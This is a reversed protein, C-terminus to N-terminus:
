FREQETLKLLSERASKILDILGNADLLISYDQKILDNTFFLYFFNNGSKEFWIKGKCTEKGCRCKIMDEGIGENISM